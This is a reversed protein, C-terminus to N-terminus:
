VQYKTQLYEIIDDFLSYWKIQVCYRDKEYKSNYNLCRTKPQVTLQGFHIATSDKNKKESIIKYIDNRSIWLFDNPVGYILADIRYNSNNGRLVFREIAKQVLRAQNFSNNIMEIENKHNKKYEEVSLRQKGKGNLTGDAYHYSLYSNIIEEKVGSHALFKTFNTITDIHVSNKTGKKISIGKMIGDIKIFIDSKQPYHNRWCKINKDEIIKPYLAKIFEQSNPDLESTKKGNFYQVFFYENDFGNNQTEVM